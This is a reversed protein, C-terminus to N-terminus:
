GRLLDFDTVDYGRPGKHPSSRMVLQAFEASAKEIRDLLPSDPEGWDQTAAYVGLPSVPAKLYFFLPVLVHDIVFSHRITGGTAGILVPRGKMADEELADFFLKFLGSFSGNYVPTVAIVGDADLLTDIARQLLESALRTTAQDVLDAALTRLELHTFEAPTVPDLRTCAAISAEALREGLLRTSSPSGAGGTVLVLSTM